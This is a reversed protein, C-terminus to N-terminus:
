IDEGAPPPASTTWGTGSAVLCALTGKVMLASWTSGDATATIILRQDAGSQAEAVLSEHYRTSLSELVVALDACQPSQAVAARAAFFLAVAIMAALLRRLFPVAKM